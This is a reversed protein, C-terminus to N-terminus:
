REANLTQGEASGALAALFTWVAAAALRATRQDVDYDPNVESIELIRTRPEAGAIEAARCLEEGPIGLPNPASVGPADAARVVDMDLGWFVAPQAHRALIARLVPEVGARLARAWVITAGRERLYREYAPSSALPQAGVEYFAAPALLGEELLQRYPTGSNRPTDVRVDFHADLNLALVDRVVDALGACDPFSIDNGGGLVVLRKGDAVLQRVAARQLEHIAELDGQVAIDGLDFLGLPALPGAAMRYLCRRIEAPARRAGPRGRNRRVGEDQPCGLIVARAAAYAASDVAVVEGLRVDHPDGRRYLLAPDPRTTLAFLDTGAM